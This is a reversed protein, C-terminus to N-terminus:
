RSVVQRTCAQQVFSGRRSFRHAHADRDRTMLFGSEPRRIITVWLRQREQLRTGSPQADIQFDARDAFDVELWPSPPNHPTSPEIGLSRRVIVVVVRSKAASLWLAHNGSRRM